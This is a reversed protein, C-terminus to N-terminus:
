LSSLYSTLNTSHELVLKKRIRTRHLEVTRHTIFLLNAIEKSSLGIKILSCVKLETPTLAPFQQSLKANFDQHVNLFQQEFIKWDSESDIGQELKRLLTSTFSNQSSNSTNSGAQVEERLKNLFENKQVLNMAMITLEKNKYEMEREAQAARLRYIEKEKQAKEIEFSAQREAIARQKEQSLIEDKIEAFLKHHKLALQFESSQEYANSLLSHVKVLSLKYDIRSLYELAQNLFVVANGYDGTANKVRGIYMLAASCIENSNISEGIRLSQIFFSQAKDFDSQVEYIAGVYQLSFAEGHRNGLEQQLRLAKQQYNLALDLENKLEHLKGLNSLIFAKGSTNDNRTMISLSRDFYSQAKEFDRLNMYIIGLNNLLVAEESESLVDRSERLCRLYFELATEYNGLREYVNAISNLSAVVKEKIQHNEFINLAKLLLELADSYRSSKLFIESYMRWVRALGIEEKTRAFISEAEELAAHAENHKTLSLFCRSLFLLAFGINQEDKIERSIDLVKRGLELARGPDLPLMKELIELEKTAQKAAAFEQELLELMEPM